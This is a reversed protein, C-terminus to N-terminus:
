GIRRPGPSHRAQVWGPRRFAFLSLCRGAKSRPLIGTETQINRNPRPSRIAPSGTRSFRSSTPPPLPPMSLAACWLCSRGTTSLSQLAASWVTPTAPSSRGMCGICLGTEILSLILNGDQSTYEVRPTIKNKRFIGMAEKQSGEDYLITPESAYVSLPIADMAALPSSESVVTLFPDRRVQFSDFGAPVPADLFGIDVEDRTLMATVGADDGEHIGISINPYLAKFEKLVPALVHCSISSFTGIRIHGVELGKLKAAQESVAETADRLRTIYPLRQEGCSTLTVGSQSRHLLAMQLEDELSSIIQSVASQSYNCHMAAKSMSGLEVVKLFVAYKSSAM